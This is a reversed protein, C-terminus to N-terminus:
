LRALVGGLKDKVVWKADAMTPSWAVEEDHSDRVIYAFSNGRVQQTIHYRGGRCRRLLTTDIAQEAYDKTQGPKRLERIRAVFLRDPDVFTVEYRTPGLKGGYQRVQVWDGVKLYHTAMISEGRAAIVLRGPVEGPCHKM